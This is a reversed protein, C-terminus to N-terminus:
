FKQKQDEKGQFQNLMRNNEILNNIVKHKKNLYAVIAPCRLLCTRKEQIKPMEAGKEEQSHNAENSDGHTYLSPLNSLSLDTPNSIILEDIDTEPPNNNHMEHKKASHDLAPTAIQTRQQSFFKQTTQALVNSTTGCGPFLLYKPEYIKTLQKMFLLKLNQYNTGESKQKYIFNLRHQRLFTYEPENKACAMRDHYYTARNM